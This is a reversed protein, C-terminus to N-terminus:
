KNNVNKFFNHLTPQGESKTKKLGVSRCPGLKKRKININLTSKSSCPQSMTKTIKEEDSKTLDVEEVTKQSFSEDLKIKELAELPSDISNDPINETDNSNNVETQTDNNESQKEENQNIIQTEPQSFFYRSKVIVNSDTKTLKFKSLKKVFPNHNIVPSTREENEEQKEEPEPEINRKVPKQFYVAIEQEIKMDSEQKLWEDYDDDNNNIVKNKKPSERKRFLLQQQKRSMSKSFVGSWISNKPLKSKTPSWDNLVKHNSPHLNGIAVQYALDDEFIHGANKCYIPNTGHVAPDTLPVLKKEYPDFVTQHRFTADALMFSEKYQDTISLHRMNLYRPVKDLFILPNTEETLKIFKEAKKLGIGQLSNVYDCGSLICMYRFKDFTFKDPRLKMSLPIKEAEVLYGCGRIDLKYLVKTCGFLMLDSDESIIIEAVGKRNFFALQADSEYPAVICDVGLKHCEKIVSSAMEPTINISQKLYTRAEDAKGLKLLETARQKAKNRAERRKSETESKAPLNKGDFVLIPKIDYSQLLNIYKICYNVLSKTDEGSALQFACSNAGKHLWCYTDIAVTSGRFESVHCPKTAKELFPLLGTIGM